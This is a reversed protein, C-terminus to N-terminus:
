RDLHAVSFLKNVNIALQSKGWFGRYFCANMENSVLQLWHATLLLRHLM